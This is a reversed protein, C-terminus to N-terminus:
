DSSPDHADVGIHDPASASETPIFCSSPDITARAPRELWCGGGVKEDRAADAEFAGQGGVQDLLVHPARRRRTGAKAASTLRAGYPAPAAMEAHPVRDVWPRAARVDLKWSQREACRGLASDLWKTSEAVLDTRPLFHGGDYVIKRKDASILRALPLVSEAM